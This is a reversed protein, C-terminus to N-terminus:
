HFLVLARQAIDASCSGFIAWIALFALPMKARILFITTLLNLATITMRYEASSHSCGFGSSLKPGSMALVNLHQFTGLSPCHLQLLTQLVLGTLLPQPLQPYKAQLFPPEPPIKDSQVAQFSSVALCPDMEEGLYCTVPHSSITEVQVQPPKFQINPISKESFPHDPMPVPQGPFHDIVMWPFSSAHHICTIVSLNWNSVLPINNVTLVSMWQFLREPSTTSEWYQVGILNLQVHHQTMKDLPANALLSQVLHDNFDEELRIDYSEIFGLELLGLLITTWKNCFELFLQYCRWLAEKPLATVDQLTRKMSSLGLEQLGQQYMIHELRMNKYGGSFKLLCTM